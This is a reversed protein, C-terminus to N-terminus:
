QVVIKYPIDNVNTGHPGQGVCVEAKVVPYPEQLRHIRMPVTTMHVALPLHREPITTFLHKADRRPLVLPTLHLVPNTIFAPELLLRSPIPHDFPRRLHAPVTDYRLSM